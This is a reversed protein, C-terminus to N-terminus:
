EASWVEDVAAALASGSEWGYLEALSDFLGPSPRKQGNEVFYLHKTSYGTLAAVDKVTLDAARRQERLWLGAIKDREWSM